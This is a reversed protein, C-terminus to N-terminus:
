ASSPMRSGRQDRPSPSTYLLCDSIFSTDPTNPLFASENILDGSDDLVSRAKQITKYFEEGKTISSIKAPPETRQSATSSEDAYRLTKASAPPKKSDELEKKITGSGDKAGPSKMPTRASNKRKLAEEIMDKTVTKGESTAKELLSDLTEESKTTVDDPEVVMVPPDGSKPTTEDVGETQDEGNEERIPSFPTKPNEGKGSTKTSEPSIMTAKRTKDPNEQIATPPGSQERPPDSAARPEPSGMGIGKISKSRKKKVMPSRFKVPSRISYRAKFTKFM